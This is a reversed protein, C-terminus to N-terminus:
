SPVVSDFIEGLKVMTVQSEESLQPMDLSKRLSALSQLGRVKQEPKQVDTASARKPKVYPLYAASNIGTPSITPKQCLKRFEAANPPWENKRDVLGNLGRAIDDPTADSLIRCWADNPEDGYQTAWQNGYIEIMRLWM